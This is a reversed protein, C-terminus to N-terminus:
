EFGPCAGPTEIPFGEGDFTAKARWGRVAGAAPDTDTLSCVLMDGLLDDREFVSRTCTGCDRGLDLYFSVRRERTM